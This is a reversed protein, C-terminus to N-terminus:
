SSWAELLQHAREAGDHDIVAKLSEVWERTETPDPDNQLLENLWNMAHPSRLTGPRERRQEIVIPPQGQDSRAPAANRVDIFRQHLEPPM